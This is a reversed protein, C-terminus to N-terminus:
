IDRTPIGVGSRLTLESNVIVLTVMKLLWSDDIRCKYGLLQLKRKM